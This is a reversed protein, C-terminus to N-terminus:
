RQCIGSKEVKAHKGDCTIRETAPECYNFATLVDFLKM